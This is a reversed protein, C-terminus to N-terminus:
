KADASSLITGIRAVYDAALAKVGSKSSASTVADVDAIVKWNSTQTTHLLIRGAQAKNAELWETIWPRVKSNVGSNTIFVADFDAAKAALGGQSHLVKTVECGQQALLQEMEEVLAEKFNTKEWALLVRKKPAEQALVAAALFVTVGAAVAARM